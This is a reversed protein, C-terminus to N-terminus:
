HPTSHSYLHSRPSQESETLLHLTLCCVDCQALYDICGGMGENQGQYCPFQSQQTKCSWHLLIYDERKICNMDSIVSDSSQLFSLM